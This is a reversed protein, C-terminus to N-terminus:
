TASSPTLASPAVFWGTQLRLASATRTRAKPTIALSGLKRACVAQVALELEGLALAATVAEVAPVAEV